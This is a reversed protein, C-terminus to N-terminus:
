YAKRYVALEHELQQIRWRTNVRDRQLERIYDVTAKLIIGKNIKGHYDLCSEPLLAGLVRIRENIKERRRREVANHSERRRKRKDQALRRSDEVEGPAENLPSDDEAPDRISGDVSYTDQANWSTTNMNPTDMSFESDPPSISALSVMGVSPQSNSYPKKDPQDVVDQWNQEGYIYGYAASSPIQSSNNM